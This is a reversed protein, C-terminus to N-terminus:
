VCLLGFIIIQRGIRVGPSIHYTESTAKLSPPVIATLPKPMPKGRAGVNTIKKRFNTRTKVGGGVVIKSFGGRDLHDVAAVLDELARRHRVGIGQNALNKLM